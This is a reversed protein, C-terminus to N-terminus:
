AMEKMVAADVRECTNPIHVRIGQEGLKGAHVDAAPSAEPHNQLAADDGVVCGLREEGLEHVLSSQNCIERSRSRPSPREPADVVLRLEADKGLPRASRRDSSNSSENKLRWVVVARSASRRKERVLASTAAILGLVRVHGTKRELRSASIMRSNCRRKGMRMASPGGARVGPAEIGSYTGCPWRNPSKRVTSSRSARPASRSPSAHISPLLRKTGSSSPM